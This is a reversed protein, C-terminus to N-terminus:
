EPPYGLGRERPLGRGSTPPRGTSPPMLQCIIHHQPPPAEEGWGGSRRMPGREGERTSPTPSGAADAEWLEALWQLSSGRLVSARGQARSARAPPDTVRLSPSPPRDSRLPCGAGPQCKPSSFSMTPQKWKVGGMVRSDSRSGKGCFTSSIAKTAPPNLEPQSDGTDIMLAMDYKHGPRKARPNAKPKFNHLLVILKSVGLSTSFPM